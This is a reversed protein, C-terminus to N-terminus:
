STLSAASQRPHRSKRRWLQQQLITMMDNHDLIQEGFILDFCSNTGLLHVGMVEHYTM